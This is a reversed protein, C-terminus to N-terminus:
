TVETGVECLCAGDENFLCFPYHEKPLFDNNKPTKAFNLFAAILEAYTRMDTQKCPVVRSGSSPNDHHKVIHIKKKPPHFIKRSM